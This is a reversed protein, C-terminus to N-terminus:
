SDIKAFLPQIEELRKKLDIALTNFDPKSKSKITTITVFIAALMHKLYFPAMEPSNSM